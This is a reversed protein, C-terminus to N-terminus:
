DKLIKLSQGEVIIRGSIPKDSAWSVDIDKSSLRAQGDKFSIEIHPNDEKNKIINALCIAKELGDARNYNWVEDPQALRPGDYISNNPMQKLTDAVKLFSDDKTGAISVPNREFAAKLFPLWSCRTLDRFSYFALDAVSNKDRISELYSIIEERKMDNKINISQSSKFNKGEGPLRPKLNCFEFLAAFIENKRTHSCDMEDMLRNISDEDNFDVKHEIFFDNFKNLCIRDKIPESYFDYEDIESLLKERTSDNVRFSSNHEYSYAKEAEIYRDTGHLEYKIQFCKQLHSQQRLFNCIIEYDIDSVLFRELKKKFGAYVKEDITADPYVTHVYGSNHSVITVQENRMARQAKDTIETGNFWM